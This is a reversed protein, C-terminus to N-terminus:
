FPILETQVTDSLTTHELKFFSPKNPREIYDLRYPGAIKREQVVVKHLATFYGDTNPYWSMFLINPGKPTMIDIRWYFGQPNDPSTYTGELMAIDTIFFPIRNLAMVKKGEEDLANGLSVQHEREIDQPTAIDDM